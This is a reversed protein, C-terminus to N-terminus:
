GPLALRWGVKPSALDRGLLGARLGDLMSWRGGFRTRCTVEEGRGRPRQNQVHGVAGAARVRSCCAEVVVACLLPASTPVSTAWGLVDLCLCQKRKSSASFHACLEKRSASREQRWPSCCSGVRSAREKEVGAFAAATLRHGAAFHAEVAVQSSDAQGGATDGVAMRAAVPNHHSGSCSAETGQQQHTFTRVSEMWRYQGRDLKSSAAAFVQRIAATSASCCASRCSVVVMAWDLNGEGRVEVYVALTRSALQRGEAIGEM